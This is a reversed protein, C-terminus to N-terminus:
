SDNKRTQLLYVEKELESVRDSLDETEEKVEEIASNTRNEIREIARDISDELKELKELTSEVSGSLQILQDSDKQRDNLTEIASNALIQFGLTGLLSVIGLAGFITKLDLGSGINNNENM